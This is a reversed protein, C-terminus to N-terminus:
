LWLELMKTEQKNESLMELRVKGLSAEFRLGTDAETAPVVLM